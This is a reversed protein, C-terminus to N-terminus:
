IPNIQNNVILQNERILRKKNEQAHDFSCKHTKPFKHKHCFTELCKCKGIALAIYDLKKTCKLLSCRISKTM